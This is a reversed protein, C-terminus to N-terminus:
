PSARLTEIWQKSLISVVEALCNQCLERNPKNEAAESLTLKFGMYKVFAKSLDRSGFIPEGQFLQNCRDCKYARSMM